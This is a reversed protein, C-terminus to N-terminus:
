KQQAFAAGITNRQKMDGSIDSFTTNNFREQIHKESMRVSADAETTGRFFNLGPRSGDRRLDVDALIDTTSLWGEMTEADGMAALLPSFLGHFEFPSLDYLADAGRTILGHEGVFYLAEFAVARFAKRARRPVLWKDATEKLTDITVSLTNEKIEIHSQFGAIDTAIIEAFREQVLVRLAFTPKQQVSQKRRLSPSIITQSSRISMFVSEQSRLSQSAEGEDSFEEETTTQNLHLNYRVTRVIDRMTQMTQGDPRSTESVSNLSYNSNSLIQNRREDGIDADETGFLADADSHDKNAVMEFGESNAAQNPPPSEEEMRDDTGLEARQGARAAMSERQMQEAEDKARKMRRRMQRELRHINRDSLRIYFSAVNGLFLSMFGVSFPLWFICFYIAIPNQPVYLGYGVTTLSVCSFYISEVVSWGEIPGVVVAGIIILGAFPFLVSIGRGFQNDRFFNKTKEYRRVFCDMCRERATQQDLDLNMEQVMSLGASRRSIVDKGKRGIEARDRAHQARSAELAVCQYVQAVMITLTAVGIFIYFIVFVQFRGQDPINDNLGYGVTTMTYISFFLADHIEWGAEQTFFATGAALYLLMFFLSFGASQRVSQYRANYGIEREELAREYELDLRQCIEIDAMSLSMSGPDGPKSFFIDPLDGFNDTSEYAETDSGEDTIDGGLPPNVRQQPLFERPQASSSRQKGDEGFSCSTPTTAARRNRRAVNAAAALEETDESSYSGSAADQKSSGEESSWFPSSTREVPPAREKDDSPETQQEPPQQIEEKKEDSNSSSTDEMRIDSVPVSDAGTKKIVVTAPPSQHHSYEETNDLSTAPTPTRKKMRSKDGNTSETGPEVASSAADDLGHRIEEEVPPAKTEKMRGNDNADDDEDTVSAIKAVMEESM